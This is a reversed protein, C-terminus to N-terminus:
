ILKFLTAFYIMHENKIKITESLDNFFEPKRIINLYASCEKMLENKEAYEGTIYFASKSADIELQKCVFLIFYILDNSSTYLFTNSLRLRNNNFVVMDFFDKNLNLLVQNGESRGAVGGLIDILSYAQNFFEVNKFHQTIFTALYTHVTFILKSRIRFISNFHLEDLEDIPQNFDIYRRCLDPEFFEDPVLTSKRNIYIFRTKSFTDKLLPENEVIAKGQRLLDDLNLANKFEYSKFALLEKEKSSNICFTFSSQSLQINLDKSVLNKKYNPDVLDIKPM